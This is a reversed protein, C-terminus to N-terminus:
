FLPNTWALDNRGEARAGNDIQRVIRYHYGTNVM